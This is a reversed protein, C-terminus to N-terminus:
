RPETELLVIYYPTFGYIGCIKLIIWRIVATNVIYILMFNGTEYTKSSLNVISLSKLSYSEPIRDSCVKAFHQTLLALGGSLPHSKPSIHQPM